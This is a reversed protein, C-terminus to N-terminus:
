AFPKEMTPLKCSMEFGVELFFFFLIMLQEDASKGPPM